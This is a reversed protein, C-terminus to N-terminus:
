PRREQRAQVIALHADHAAKAARLAYLVNDGDFRKTKWNTWDDIVEVGSNPGMGFDPNDCIMTVQAGEPARLQEIISWAEIATAHETPAAPSLARIAAAIETRVKIVSTDPESIKQGVNFGPWPDAIKACREIIAAADNLM